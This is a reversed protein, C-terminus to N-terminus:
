SLPEPNVFAGTGTPRLIAFVNAHGKKGIKRLLGMKQAKAFWYRVSAEDRNFKKAVLEVTIDGVFSLIKQKISEESEQANKEKPGALESTKIAELEVELIEKTLGKFHAQLDVLKFKGETVAKFLLAVIAKADNQNEKAIDEALFKQVREAVKANVQISVMDPTKKDTAM